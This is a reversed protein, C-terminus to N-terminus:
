PSHPDTAQTSNILPADFTPSTSTTSSLTATPGQTQSWLYTLIDGDQDASGTGDLTVNDGEDVTQDAGANATPTQNTVGSSDSDLITVTVTANNASDVAGDNVTLSFTLIAQTSNILPADFTPSTSTTSSLTATPGQTQSWLYTLIDGDQDASGTGDLTVNDGEDVTQDAGANATPTQNTVGSSDSDLITVTVTANNASDVAGDNVTLSFTLIAQTSNILPADFTPSASTSNSLTATPGQTQSWM